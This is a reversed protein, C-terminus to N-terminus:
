RDGRSGYLRDTVLRLGVPDGVHYWEGDHVLGGLRGAAEAKDYLRVLSFAGTPASKFLAPSLLQVGAFVYPVVEVGQRRHPRGLQDLRYDGQGGGDYGIATVTRQLLLAADTTEADWAAALRDLAPVKGELWLSDGNVVFFPEDGLLNLAQTVGGGTELASAEHAITIKPSPRAKLHEVILDGLYHVNVVVREVGAAELRDIAHDLLARDGIRVLPKPLTDTIPRLREGRGAALVMGIRPRIM